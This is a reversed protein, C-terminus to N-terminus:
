ADEKVRFPFHIIGAAELRQLQTLSSRHASADLASQIVRDTEERVAPPTAERALAEDQEELTRLWLRVSAWTYREPRTSADIETQLAPTLKFWEGRVRALAFQKHLEREKDYGGPIAGELTLEVPCCIRLYNYRRVPDFAYGIKVIDLERASVFYVSV